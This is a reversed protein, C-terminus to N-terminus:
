CISIWLGSQELTSTFASLHNQWTALCSALLHVLLTFHRGLVDFRVAPLDCLLRTFCSVPPILSAGWSSSSSDHYDYVLLSHCLLLLIRM